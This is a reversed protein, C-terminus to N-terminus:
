DHSDPQSLDTGALAILLHECPGDEHSCACEAYPTPEGPPGADWVFVPTGYIGWVTAPHVTVSVDRRDPPVALTSVAADIVEPTAQVGNKRAAAWGAVAEVRARAEALSGTFPHAAWQSAEGTGPQGAPGTAPPQEQPETM